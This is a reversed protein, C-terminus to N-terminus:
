IRCSRSESKVSAFDVVGLDQVAMIRASNLRVYLSDYCQFGLDWEGYKNTSVVSNSKLDYYIQNEYKRNMEVQNSQVDGRDLPTVAIDEEFCSTLLIAIPLLLLLKKM